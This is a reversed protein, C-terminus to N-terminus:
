NLLNYIKMIGNHLGVVLSNDLKMMCSIFNTEKEKLIKINFDKMNLIMYGGNFCGILLEYDNIIEFCTGKVGIEYKKIIKGTQYNILTLIKDGSIILRQKPLEKIGNIFCCQIDNIEKIISYKKLDWIILKNDYSTSVM